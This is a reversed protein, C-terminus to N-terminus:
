ITRQILRAFQPDRDGRDIDLGISPNKVNPGLNTIKVRVDFVGAFFSM